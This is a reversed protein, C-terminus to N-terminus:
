ERDDGHDFFYYIGEREMWRSIFDLDSERYQCIHEEVEYSGLRLEYDTGSLGNDQLIAEIVEPVSRQTFIRSHRSLGLQWLRPVLLARVLAWGDLAHLLEFEGFVGTFVFPPIRDNQRDIVLRAKAGIPDALDIEEDAGARLILFIEIEYPRSIAEVGTFAAVRTSGPLASSSITILDQSM